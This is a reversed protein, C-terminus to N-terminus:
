SVQDTPNGPLYYMQRPIEEKVIIILWRASRTDSDAL